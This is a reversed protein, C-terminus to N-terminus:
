IVSNPGKIYIVTVDATGSTAGGATVTAIIDTQADYAHDTNESQQIGPEWDSLLRGTDDADGVAINTNASTNLWNGPGGSVAVEVVKAGSPVTFLTVTGSNYSVTTTDYVISDKDAANLQALTVAHVDLTANALEARAAAGDKTKLAVADASSADIKPGQKGLEVVSGVGTIGYNKVSDVM